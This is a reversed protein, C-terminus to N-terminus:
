SLQDWFTLVSPKDPITKPTIPGGPLTDVLGLRNTSVLTISLGRQVLLEQFEICALDDSFSRYAQLFIQDFPQLRYDFGSDALGGIVTVFIVEVVIKVIFKATAPKVGQCRKFDLLEEVTHTRLEARACNSIDM